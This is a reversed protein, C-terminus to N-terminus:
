RGQQVTPRVCALTACGPQSCQLALQLAVEKPLWHIEPTFDQVGALGGFELEADPVANAGDWTTLDAAVAPDGSLDARRVSCAGYAADHGSVGYGDDDWAVADNPVVPLKSAKAATEDHLAAQQVNFRARLCDMKVDAAYPALIAALTTAAGWKKASTPPMSTQM